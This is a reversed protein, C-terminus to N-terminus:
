IKIIPHLLNMNKQKQKMSSHVYRNLTTKVDSHGLIDSLSKIDFGAEISRTAFTHRLAHFNVKSLGCQSIYKEFTMQMLRPEVMKGKRNKLVFGTERNKELLPILFSPIPIIRISKDTKPLTIELMTKGNNKLRQVTKNIIIRDPYIDSWQLACLEGLRIGTYLALLIGLKYNNTEEYLYKELTAQEEISLVRIEKFSLKLYKIKPKTIGYLEEAHKLIQGLVVLIDNVTKASLNSLIILDVSFDNIVRTNLEEIKMKSIPHPKIHNRIISEYKQYTSQKVNKKICAIWSDTLDMLGLRYCNYTRIEPNIKKSYEDQKRKVEEFTKGYLSGYKKRGTADVGKVYRAEWRGDKRKFTNIGKKPLFDGKRLYTINIQCM